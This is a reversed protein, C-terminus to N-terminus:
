APDREIWEKRGMTPQAKYSLRTIDRLTDIMMNVIDMLYTEVKGNLHLPKTLSVEEHGVCANWKTASPREGATEKM